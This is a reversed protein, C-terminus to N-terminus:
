CTNLMQAGSTSSDNNVGLMTVLLMQILDSKVLAAGVLKRIHHVAILDESTINGIEKNYLQM